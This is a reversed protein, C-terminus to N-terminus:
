WLAPKSKSEALNQLVMDQDYLRIVWLSMLVIQLPHVDM